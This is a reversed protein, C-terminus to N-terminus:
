ATSGELVKASVRLDERASVPSAVPVALLVLYLPLLQARQRALLGFNALGSYGVVFLGVYFLAFAVYPRRRISRVASWLHRFGILSLGLVLTGELATALAQTNNVEFVFPRFLVTLFGVPLNLPNAVATPEFESGGYDTNQSLQDLAGALGRDTPVGSDNLFQEARLVTIWALSLVAIFM